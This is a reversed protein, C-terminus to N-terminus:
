IHILSLYLGVPILVLGGLVAFFAVGRLSSPSDFIRDMLFVMLWAALLVLVAFAVYEATKIRWVKQRFDGLRQQLHEPLRLGANAKTESM